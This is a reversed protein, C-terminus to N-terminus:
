ETTEIYRKIDASCDLDCPKTTAGIGSCGNNCSGTEVGTTGLSCDGNCVGSWVIPSTACNTDPTCVSNINVSKIGTSVGASNWCELEYTKDSTINYQVENGGTNAKWGTWDGSAWCSSANTTSWILDSSGNYTVATPNAHFNLSPLTDPAKTFKVCVPIVSNDTYPAVGGHRLKVKVADKSLIVPGFSDIKTDQVIFDAIDTTPGVTALKLGNSDIFDVNFIEASQSPTFPRVSYGDWSMTEVSYSGALLNIDRFFEPTISNLRSTIPNSRELGGNIDLIQSGPENLFSCLPVLPEPKKTIKICVPTVSDGGLPYSSSFIRLANSDGSLVISGFFDTKTDQVVFDVIDTTPGVTALKNGSVDLFDIKWQEALQESSLPRSLYGDWSMTEVDYVGAPVNVSEFFEKKASGWLSRQTPDGDSLGGNIDFIQSDPTNSFACVPVSPEVVPTCARSSPAKDVCSEGAVTAYNYSTAYQIGSSNCAGWTAVSTTYTCSSVKTKNIIHGCSAILSNNKTCSINATGQSVGDIFVTEAYYGKSNPCHGLGPILSGTVPQDCFLGATSSPVAFGVGVTITLTSTTVLSSTVTTASATNYIGSLIFFSAFLLLGTKNKKNM